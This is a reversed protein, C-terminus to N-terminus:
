LKNVRFNKRSFVLRAIIFSSVFLTISSGATILINPLNFIDPLVTKDSIVVSIGQIEHGVVYDKLLKFIFAGGNTLLFRVVSQFLIFMLAAFGILLGKRGFVMSLPQMIAIVTMATSIILSIALPSPLHAKGGTFAYALLTVIFAALLSAAIAFVANLYQARVLNKRGGPLSMLQDIERDSNLSSVTALTAFISVYLITVSAPVTTTKLSVAFILAIVLVISYGLVLRKHQEFFYTMYGKM